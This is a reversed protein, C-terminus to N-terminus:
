PCRGGVCPGIGNKPWFQVRICPSVVGTLGASTIRRQQECEAWSRSVGFVHGAGLELESGVRSPTYSPNPFVVLFLWFALGVTEM